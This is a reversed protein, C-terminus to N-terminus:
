ETPLENTSFHLTAKPGIQVVRQELEEEGALSAAEGSDALLLQPGARGGEVGRYDSGLVLQLAPDRGIQAAAIKAADNAYDSCIELSVRMDMFVQSFPRDGHMFLTRRDAGRRDTTGEVSEFMKLYRMVARDFFVLAENFVLRVEGPPGEKIQGSEFRWEKGLGSAQFGIEGILKRCVGHAAELDRVVGDLKEKAPDSPEAASPAKAKSEAAAPLKAVVESWGITGPVFLVNPPLTEALATLKAQVDLAAEASMFHTEASQEAFLYEPAALVCLQEPGVDRWLELAAGAARKVLALRADFPTSKQWANDHTPVQLAAMHVRRTKPKAPAASAAPMPPQPEPQASALVPELRETVRELEVAAARLQPVLSVAEQPGAGNPAAAGGEVAEPPPAPLAAELPDPAGPAAGHGDGAEPPPATPAYRALVLPPVTLTAVLDVNRPDTWVWHGDASQVRQFGIREYYADPNHSGGIADHGLSYVFSRQLLAPRRALLRSVAANGATGQLALV